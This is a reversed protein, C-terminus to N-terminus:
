AFAEWWAAGVLCLAGLLLAAYGLRGARLRSDITNGTDSAIALPLAVLLIVIGGTLALAGPPTM